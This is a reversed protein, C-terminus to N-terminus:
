NGFLIRNLGEIEDGFEKKLLFGVSKNQSFVYYTLTRFIKKQSNDLDILKRLTIRQVMITAIVIFVLAMLSLYLNLKELNNVEDHFGNLIYNTLFVYAADLVTIDTTVTDFYSSVVIKINETTSNSKYLNIYNSSITYYKLNFGLLGLTNGQTSADCTSALDSSLYSCINGQLFDQIVASRDSNENTFLTNLLKQNVGGFEELNSDVQEAPPQNRILLNTQSAFMAWFYFSSIVLCSQYSLKNTVSLQNNVGQLKDFSNISEFYLVEFLGSIVAVFLFSVLVYKAIYIVLAKTSYSKTYFRMKKEKKEKDKIKTSGAVKRNANDEFFNLYINLNKIFSKAEINDDLSTQFKKIRYLREEISESTLRVLAQFTRTYTKLVVRAVTFLSLCLVFLALNEIILINMLLTQNKSIITQLGGLIKSIQDESNVLFDNATNNITTMPESRTILAADTGTWTGMVRNNLALLNNSTFSDLPGDTLLDLTTPDYLKMKVGFIETLIEDSGYSDLNEKLRSNFRQMKVVEQQMSTQIQSALASAPRLGMMRSYILLAWQWARLASTLRRSATDVITVGGNIESLSKQTFFYNVLALVLVGIMILYVAYISVKTVFRIKEQGFFDNLTKILKMDMHSYSKTSSAGRGISQRLDINHLDNDKGGGALKNDIDELKKTTTNQNQSDDVPLILQKFIMKGEGSGRKKGEEEREDPILENSLGLTRSSVGSNQWSYQDSKMGGEVAFPALTEGPMLNEQVLNEEELDIHSVRVVKYVEELLVYPQIKVEM